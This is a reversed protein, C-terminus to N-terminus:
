CQKEVIKENILLNYFKSIISFGLTSVFKSNIIYM